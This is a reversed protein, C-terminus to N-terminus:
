GTLADEWAVEIRREAEPGGPPSLATTCNATYDESPFILDSEALESGEKEFM